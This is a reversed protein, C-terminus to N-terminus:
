KKAKLFHTKVAKDIAQYAQPILAKADAVKKATVLKRVDKIVADMASKRRMNFIRKRASAKIAKKASSTIAM